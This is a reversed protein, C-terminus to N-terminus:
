TRSLLSVVSDYCFIKRNFTHLFNQKVAEKELMWSTRTELSKETESFGNLPSRREFNIESKLKRSNRMTVHSSCDSYSGNWREFHLVNVLIKNEEAIRARVARGDM